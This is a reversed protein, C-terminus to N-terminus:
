LLLGIQAHKTSEDSPLHPHATEINRHIVMKM